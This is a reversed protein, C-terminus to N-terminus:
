TRKIPDSREPGDVQAGPDRLRARVGGVLYHSGCVLVTAGSRLRERIGDLLASDDPGQFRPEGPAACADLDFSDVRAPPVLWLPGHERLRAAMAPAPKDVMTGFVIASPAIRQEDLAACLAEIGDLNHAVDLWLAGSSDPEATGGSGVHVRELRGPWRVGDLHSATARPDLEHVVALALAANSRQHPGALGQPDRALPEVFVLPAAVLSARAEIVTRAEPEQLSSFVPVGARIVAAKEGAIATLTHGLYNQHDFAIHAIAVVRPRVVSTADLRGGIGAELVVFRCGADVFHRLAIATLVEYFSLDVGAQAEARALQAVDAEVVDDPLARGDVRIREGVLELHPSTFLGVPGRELTRLAHDIMACTSGKGNTGVVHVVDFPPHERLGPLLVDLVRQMPETSFRVGLTRRAFLVTRWDGAHGDGAHGDGAHGDGAHGDRPDVAM